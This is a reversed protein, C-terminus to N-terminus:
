GREFDFMYGETRERQRQLFAEIGGNGLSEGRRVMRWFEGPELELWERIIRKSDEQLLELFERKTWRMADSVLSRYKGLIQRLSDRAKWRQLIKSSPKLQYVVRSPHLFDDPRLPEIRILSGWGSKSKRLSLAETLTAFVIAHEFEVRLPPRTAISLESWCESWSPHTRYELVSQNSNAAVVLQRHTPVRDVTPTSSDAFSQASV